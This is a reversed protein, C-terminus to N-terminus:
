SLEDFIYHIIDIVKVMDAISINEEKTHEAKSGSGIVVTEIGKKNYNFADTGGSIICVNPSIGVRNIAKKAIKVAKASESIRYAKATLEMKIEAQAGMVNAKTLFVDKILNSHNLCKKHSKSRCEIKISTKEPVANLLEGGRIIGVNVSTENDIWGEKLKTICYSAVRISSIGKEPETGAHAAKGIIKVDIAMYSPGGIVINELLGDVVFGIKSTLLKTDLNKSGLLGVEEEKSVIIELPPYREATRIAEFLEAIGAKDDAGLVTKGKSYIIGNKYIPVINKGPKVTDAHVGFFVPETQDSKKAPIKSILNGYKDIICEAKFNKTFIDQLYAIFNEEEGSESDIRVLDCFVKGVGKKIM